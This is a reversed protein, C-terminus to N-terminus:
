GAPFQAPLTQVIGVAVLTAPLFITTLLAIGKMTESDQKTATAVQLSSNSDRQSIVTYV